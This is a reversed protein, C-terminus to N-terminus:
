AARRGAAEVLAEAILSGPRSATAEPHWQMGVMFSRDEREITEVVGDPSAATVRLHRGLKRVAQHHVSQVVASRGLLRRATGSPNTHVVHPGDSHEFRTLGDEVVDQYLTGGSAINLLQHGRCIGVLPIDHALATTVVRLDRRDEDIDVNGHLTRPAEGYLESHIDIFSGTFVLGDALALERESPHREVRRVSAGAAQLWAIYAEPSERIPSNADERMLLLVLPAQHQRIARYARLFAARARTVRKRAAEESTLLLHAIEAHTFGADFHMLLVFREHSNLRALAERAADPEGAVTATAEIADANEMAAVPKRSRRRLEDIALNRSATRLWALQRERSLGDPMSQWARVFTEQALDEAAHRDGGLAFALRSVLATEETAILTELTM